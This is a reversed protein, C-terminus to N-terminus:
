CKKVELADKKHIYWSRGNYVIKFYMNEKEDLVLANAPRTTKIYEVIQEPGSMECFNYLVVESPLYIM